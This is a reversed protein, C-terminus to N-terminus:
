LGDQPAASGPQAAAVCDPTVSGFAQVQSPRFDLIFNAGFLYNGPDAFGADSIGSLNGGIFAKKYLNARGIFVGSGHGNQAIERIEDRVGHIIHDVLLQAPSHGFGKTHDVRYDLIVAAKGDFNSPQLYVHAMYRETKNDDMQNLLCTEGNAQRYLRKGGWIYTGVKAQLDNWVPWKQYVSGRGVALGVPVAAAAPACRFIKALAAQDQDHSLWVIPDVPAEAFGECGPEVVTVPPQDEGQALPAAAEDKLGSGGSSKCGAAVSAGLAALLLLTMPHRSSPSQPM